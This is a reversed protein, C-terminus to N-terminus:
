NQKLGGQRNGVRPLPLPDWSEAEWEEEASHGDAEPFANASLIEQVHVPAWLCSYIEVGWQRDGSERGREPEESNRSQSAGHSPICKEESGERARRAWLSVCVGLEVDSSRMSFCLFFRDSQRSIEGPNLSSIHHNWMVETLKWAGGFDTPAPSADSVPGRVM